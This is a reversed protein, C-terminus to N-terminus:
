LHYAVSLYPGSVDFDHYNGDKVFNADGTPGFVVLSSHNAINFYKDGRYGLEVSLSSCNCFATRYTLAFKGSLGPVILGHKHANYTNTGILTDAIVGGVLDQTLLNERWDSDSRGFILDGGIETLIGFNNFVNYAINFGVRPGVGDFKARHNSFYEDLDTVSLVDDALDDPVFFHTDFNEKFNVYRGGAFFQVDVCNCFTRNQHGLLDIAHYKTDYHADVNTTDAGFFGVFPSLLPLDAETIFDALHQDNDSRYWTYELSFGYNCCTCSPFDYGAAIRYGWDCDNKFNRDDNFVITPGAVPITASFINVFPMASLLSDGLKADFAELQVYAGGHRRTQDAITSANAVVSALLVPVLLLHLKKLGTM